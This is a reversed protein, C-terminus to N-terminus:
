FRVRTGVTAGDPTTSATLTWRQIRRARTARVAGVVAVIVGGVQVAGALSAAWKQRASDTHGLAFFPGVVPVLLAQGFRRRQRVDPNASSDGPLPLGYADYQPVDTMDRAEDIAIAGALSTFFYTSATMSAGLWVMARGKKREARADYGPHPGVVRPAPPPPTPARVPAALGSPGTTSVTSATTTEIAPPTSSPSPAGGDVPPASAASAALPAAAEPTSPLADPQAAMVAADIMASPTALVSAFLFTMLGPM